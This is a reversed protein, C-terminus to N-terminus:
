VTMDSSFVCVSVQNMLDYILPSACKELSLSISSKCRSRDEVGGRRVRRQGSSYDEDGRAPM